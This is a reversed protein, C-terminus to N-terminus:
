VYMYLYTVNCMCMTCMCVLNSAQLNRLDKTVRSTCGGTIAKGWFMRAECHRTATVNEPGFPCAVTATDGVRTEPWVFTGKLKNGRENVDVDCFGNELLVFYELM